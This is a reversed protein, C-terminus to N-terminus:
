QKRLVKFMGKKDFGFFAKDHDTKILLYIPLISSDMTEPWPGSNAYCVKGSPLPDSRKTTTQMIPLFWLIFM